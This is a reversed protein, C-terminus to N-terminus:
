HGLNNSEISLSVVVRNAERESVKERKEGGVAGVEAGRGGGEGEDFHQCM